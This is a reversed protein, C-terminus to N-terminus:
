DFAWLANDYDTPTVPSLSGEADDSTVIEGHNFSAAIPYGTKTLYIKYPQLDDVQLSGYGYGHGGYGYGHYGSSGGRTFSQVGEVEEIEDTINAGSLTWGTPQDMSEPVVWYLRHEGAPINRILWTRLAGEGNDIIDTREFDIAGEDEDIGIYGFHVYGVARQTYPSRKQSQLRRLM